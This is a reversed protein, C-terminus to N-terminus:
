GIPIERERDEGALPLPVWAAAREHSVHMGVIAELVRLPGEPPYPSGGGADLAAVIERLAIDMSSTQPRTGPWHEERGDHFRITVDSGGTFARGATGNIAIGAPLRAYDAGDVTVILGGELRLLGWGGPDRYDPGRCDPKGAPDLTGSVAAIPRGTLMEVADFLHTGVNGLRGNGWQLNCSTLEGLGGAAILEHLRRYNPNFRRNHNVVLLTGAARCAAIMQEADRVRTAIPKECYVAKAGSQACATSIAAHSPSNTAVSVIEPQKENLLTRWDDYCPVGFRQAFRERRDAQRDAAALLEVRPHRRLAEVHTGDLNGVDQGIADGAFQDGAGMFGLGILAAGYTREM